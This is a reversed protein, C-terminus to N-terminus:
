LRASFSCRYPAHTPAMATAAEKQLEGGERRVGPAIASLNAGPGVFLHRFSRHAGLNDSKLEQGRSALSEPQIILAVRHRSAPAGHTLREPTGSSALSERPGSGSAVGASLHIRPPGSRDKGAWPSPLSSLAPRVPSHRLSRGSGATFSLPSSLLGPTLDLASARGNPEAARAQGGPLPRGLSGSGASGLLSLQMFPTSLSPAALKLGM